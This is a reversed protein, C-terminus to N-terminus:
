VELCSSKAGLVCAVDGRLDFLPPQSQGIGPWFAVELKVVIGSGVLFTEQMESFEFTVSLWICPSPHSLQDVLHYRPFEVGRDVHDKSGRRHYCIEIGGNCVDLPEETVSLVSKHCAFTSSISSYNGQDIGLM